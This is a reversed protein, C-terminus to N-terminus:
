LATVSSNLLIFDDGNNSGKPTYKNAARNGSTLFLLKSFNSNCTITVLPVLKQTVLTLKNM